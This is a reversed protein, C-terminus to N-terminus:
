RDAVSDKRSGWTFFSNRITGSNTSGASINKIIRCCGLREVAPLMMITASSIISSAPALHRCRPSM